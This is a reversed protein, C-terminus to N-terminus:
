QQQDGCRSDLRVWKRHTVSEKLVAAAPCAGASRYKGIHNVDALQCVVTERAYREVSSNEKFTPIQIEQSLDFSLNKAEPRPVM